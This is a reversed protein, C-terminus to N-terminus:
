KLAELIRLLEFKEYDFDEDIIDITYYSTGSCGCQFKDKSDEFPMILWSPNYYYKLAKFTTVYEKWNNCEIKM